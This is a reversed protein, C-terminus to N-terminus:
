ESPLIHGSFSLQGCGGCVASQDDPLDCRVCLFENEKVLMQVPSTFTLELHGDYDRSPTMPTRYSMEIKGALAGACGAENLIYVSCAPASTAASYLLSYVNLYEVVLNNGSEVPGYEATWYFDGPSYSGSAEGQILVRQDQVSVTPTNTVEVEIPEVLPPAANSSISYFSVLFFTALVPLTCRVKIVM